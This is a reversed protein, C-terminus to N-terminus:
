FFGLFLLSDACRPLSNARFFVLGAGLPNSSFLSFLLHKYHHRVEELQSYFFSLDQSREPNAIPHLIMDSRNVMIDRDPRTKSITL